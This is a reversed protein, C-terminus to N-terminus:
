VCRVDTLHIRAKYHKKVAMDCIKDSVTSIHGARFRAERIRNLRVILWLLRLATTARRKRRVRNSGGGAHLAVM